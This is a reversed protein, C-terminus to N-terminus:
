YGLLTELPGKPLPVLFQMEFLWFAIAATGLSVALTAPWRFKRSAVMFAAIYLASAVYIGIVFILAAYVLTPVLVALVLRFRQWSVFERQAAPSRDLYAKVAIVVSAFALMGGVRVPFYGPQPTNASWGVGLHISDAIIALGVLFLGIAVALEATRRSIGMDKGM